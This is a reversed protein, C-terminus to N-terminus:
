PSQLEFSSNVWRDHRQGGAILAASSWFIDNQICCFGTKESYFECNAISCDDNKVFHDDNKIMKLSIIMM